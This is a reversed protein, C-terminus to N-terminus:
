ASGQGFLDRTPDVPRTTKSSRRRRTEQRETTARAGRTTTPAAPRTEGHHPYPDTAPWVCLEAGCVCLAPTADRKIGNAPCSRCRFKHRTASM